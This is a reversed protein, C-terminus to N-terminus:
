AQSYDLHLITSSNNTRVAPLDNIKNNLVNEAQQSNPSISKPMPDRFSPEFPSSIKEISADSIIHM